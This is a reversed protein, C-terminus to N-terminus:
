AATIGRILQFVGGGGSMTFGPVMGQEKLLSVAGGREQYQKYNNYHESGALREILTALKGSVRSTMPSAYDLIIFHSAIRNVMQLITTIDSPSFQHLAMSLVVVDYSTDTWNGRMTADSVMFTLNLLRNKEKRKEGYIIAKESLDIGTVVAGKQAMMLALTGNGCALDLVQEGPQVLSATRTHMRRLLPDILYSYLKGENM